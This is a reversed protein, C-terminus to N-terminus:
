AYKCLKGIEFTEEERLYPLDFKTAYFQIEARGIKAGHEKTALKSAETATLGKELALNYANRVTTKRKSEASRMILDRPHKIGAKRMHARIASDTFGFKSCIEIRTLHPHQSWFELAIDYRQKREAISATKKAWPRTM